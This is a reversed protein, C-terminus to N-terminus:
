RGRTDAIVQYRFREARVRRITGLLERLHCPDAHLSGHRLQEPGAPQVSAVRELGMGTDVSTFPLPSRGDARQDFEMFVLNWIELWRPCQDSHDPICEPGESFEAGRDFHIESCPGCPGTEAM